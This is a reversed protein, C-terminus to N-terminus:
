YINLVTYVFTYLRGKDVVYLIITRRPGSLIPNSSLGGALEANRSDLALLRVQKGVSRAGWHQYSAIHTHDYVVKITYLAAILLFSAAFGLPNLCYM